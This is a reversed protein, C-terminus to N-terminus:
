CGYIRAYSFHDRGDPTFCKALGEKKFGLFKAWRDCSPWNADVYMELRHYSFREPLYEDVLFRMMRSFDKAHKKVLPSRIVCVEAVGPRLFIIGCIAVSIGYANTMTVYETHGLALNGEMISWVDLNELPTFSILDKMSFPHLDLSFKDTM